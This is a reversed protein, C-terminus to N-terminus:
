LRFDYEPLRTLWSALRGPSDALNLACRLVEHYTRLNLTAGYLHPRLVLISWIVAFCEKENTTYRREADTFTLSWYGIPLRDGNSQDQLLACGVQYSCADTDLTYKYGHRPVALVPPSVLRKKLEAFAEYESDTLAGLEFPHETSTKRNLRTAIKAFNPVFRRYVNCM